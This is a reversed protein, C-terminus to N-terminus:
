VEGFGIFSFSDAEWVKRVSRIIVNFCRFAEGIIRPWWMDFFM